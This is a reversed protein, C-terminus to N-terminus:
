IIKDVLDQRCDPDERRLSNVTVYPTKTFGTAHIYKGEGLYVAVHGPFFILDGKKLAEAPIKRIPYGEVISADRYILLGNDLYSM